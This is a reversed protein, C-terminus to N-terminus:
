ARARGVWQPRELVSQGPPAAFTTPGQSAEVTGASRKPERLEATVAPSSGAVEEPGRVSVQPVGAQCKAAPAAAWSGRATSETEAARSATSSAAKTSSPPDRQTSSPASAALPHAPRNWQGPCSRTVGEAGM